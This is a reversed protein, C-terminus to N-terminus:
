NLPPNASSVPIRWLTHTAGRKTTVNTLRPVPSTEPAWALLVGRELSVAGAVDLRPPLVVERGHQAHEVEGLLSVVMSAVPLEDIQGSRSRGFANQRQQAIEAYHRAHNNVFDALPQSSLKQLVFEKEARAPIEGLDYVFRGLALRAAPISKSGPNNVLLKAGAPGSSLAATLPLEASHWWDSLFLQSTWVPVAVEAAFSDGTQLLQMKEAGDGGRSGLYEARFSAFKLESQMPYRANVPSYISVYTRGRLEAGQRSPLVDVIHLENYESDGARLRYGILYILGSFLVVYAPFTLWTLMPRNIKKLWFRDVPGIVLLYVVLLAVLWEVPLKHVQRSDIMAGFIGDVAQGYGSSFDTSTYLKLPVGLLHTWLSPLSKWSKFPEREPSFLLVTIRGLGRNAQVILPQGGASVVPQGDRRQGTVVRIEASEFAADRSADGFASRVVPEDNSPPANTVSTVRSLWRDLEEHDAVTVADQPTFPLVGRLWPVGTVDALQEISVILHGGANLWGLLANAQGARLKVATESNLYLADLGELVLPNDPFMEPQFRVAAPQLDPQNRKISRVSVMGAATRPLAGIIQTEWGLQRQPRVGVSEARVKGRADRLRVDWISPFRSSAFTPLVVRKTTGTPLEIPLRHPEGGGFSAVSVEIFGNFTPGKNEIECTIPFWSAERVTGDYGLFVDFRVEARGGAALLLGFLLLGHRL